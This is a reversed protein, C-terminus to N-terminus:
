LFHPLRASTPLSSLAELQLHLSALSHGRDFNGANATLCRLFKPCRLLTGYYGLVLSAPHPNGCGTHASAECQSPTKWPPPSHGAPPCPRGGRRLSFLRPAHGPPAAALTVGVFANYPTCHLVPPRGCPDGRRLTVPLAAPRASLPGDAGVCRYSAHNTTAHRIRM